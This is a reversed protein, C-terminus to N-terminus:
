YARVALPLWYLCFVRLAATSSVARGRISRGLIPTSSVTPYSRLTLSHPHAYLRWISVSNDQWTSM